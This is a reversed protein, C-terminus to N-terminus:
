LKSLKGGAFSMTLLGTSEDPKIEGVISLDGTRTTGDAYTQTIPVPVGADAIAQIFELDDSAHDIEVGIDSMMGPVVSQLVRTSGDGNMQIENNRGGLDTSGPSDQATKFTRGNIELSRLAGHVAM